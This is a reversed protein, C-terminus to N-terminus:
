PSDEKLRHLLSNIQLKNNPNNMDEIILEYNVDENNPNVENPVNLLKICLKNHEFDEKAVVGKSTYEITFSCSNIVSTYFDSQKHIKSLHSSIVNAEQQMQSKTIAKNSYQAGNFFISWALLIVISLIVIIALVETLSVGSQNNKIMIPEGKM